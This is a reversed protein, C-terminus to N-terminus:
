MEPRNTVSVDGLLDSLLQVVRQQKPRDLQRFAHLVQWEGACDLLPADHIFFEVPMNLVDAVESLEVATIMDEDSEFAHLQDFRIGTRSALEEISLDRQVRVLKLRRGIKLNVNRNPPQTM